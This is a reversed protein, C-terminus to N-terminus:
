FVFQWATNWAWQVLIEPPLIRVDTSKFSGSKELTCVLQSGSDLIDSQNCISYYCLSISKFILHFHELISQLLLYVVTFIRFAVSNYM